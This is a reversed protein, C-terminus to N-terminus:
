APPQSDPGSTIAEDFYERILQRQRESVQQFYQALADDGIAEATLYLDKIQDMKATAKTDPKPVEATAASPVSDATEAPPYDSRAAVPPLDGALRDPAVFGSAEPQEPPEFPGRVRAPSQGSPLLPDGAFTARDPRAALPVRVPLPETGNPLEIGRPSETSRRSETSHPPEPWRRNVDLPGLRGPERDQGRDLPDPRAAGRDLSHDLPGPRAQLREPLIVPLPCTEDDTRAQLAPPVSASPPEAPM